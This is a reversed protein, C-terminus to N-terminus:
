ILGEQKLRCVLAALADSLKVNEAKNLSYFVGFTNKFKSIQTDKPLIELLEEAIPAPYIVQDPHREREYQNSSCDDDDYTKDDLYFDVKEYNYATLSYNKWYHESEVSIGAEKLKKAWELSVCYKENM